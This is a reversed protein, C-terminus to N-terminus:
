FRKVSLIQYNRIRIVTPFKKVLVFRVMVKRGNILTKSVIDLMDLALRAINHAHKQSPIPLGSVCM